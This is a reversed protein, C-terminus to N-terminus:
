HRLFPEMSPQYSARRESPSVGQRQEWWGKAAQAAGRMALEKVLRVALAGVAAMVASGLGAQGAEKRARRGGGRMGLLAGIAFAAGVAPLPHAVIHAPIDLRERAARFRRGLEGLHEVLSARADEILRDPDTRPEM